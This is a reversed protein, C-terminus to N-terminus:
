SKIAMRGADTITIRVIEIPRRGAEVTDRRATELGARILDALM